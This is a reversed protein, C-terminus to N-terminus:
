AGLRSACHRCECSPNPLSSQMPGPLSAHCSPTRRSGGRAGTWGGEGKRIGIARGTEGTREDDREDTVMRDSGLEGTNGGMRDSGLEGTNAGMRDSGLEGTNVGGDPWVVWWQVRGVGFGDVAL